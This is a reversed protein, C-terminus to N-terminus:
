NGPKTATKFHQGVLVDSARAEVTEHHPCLEFIGILLYLQREADFEHETTFIALRWLSLCDHVTSPSRM